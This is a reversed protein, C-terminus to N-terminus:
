CPRRRRSPPRPSCCTRSRGTETVTFYAAAVSPTAPQPIYADTIKIQGVSASARPGSAAAPSSTTAASTSSTSSCASAAVAILACLTGAAAFRATPTHRVNGPLTFRHM